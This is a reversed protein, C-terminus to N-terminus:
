DASDHELKDLLRRQREIDRRLAGLDAARRFDAWWAPRDKGMLGELFDMGADSRLLKALADASLGSRGELWYECARTSMGTRVALETATKVPWIAQAVRRIVDISRVDTRSLGFVSAGASKGIRGAGAYIPKM